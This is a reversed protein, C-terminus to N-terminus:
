LTTWYRKCIASSLEMVQDACRRIRQMLYLRGLGNCNSLLPCTQSFDFHAVSVDVLTVTKKSLFSLFSASCLELISYRLTCTRPREPTGWGARRFMLLVCSTALARWCMFSKLPSKRVASLSASSWPVLGCHLSQRAGTSFMACMSVLHRAVASM